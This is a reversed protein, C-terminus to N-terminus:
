KESLISHLEPFVRSFQENRIKDRVCVKDYFTDIIGPVNQSTNLLSSVSAMKADTTSIRSRLQRLVRAPFNTVKFWAPDDLLSFHIATDPVGTKRAWEVVDHLHMINFISVTIYINIDFTAIQTSLIEGVHHAVEAWSAGHRQYEFREGVDDVSFSLNLNKFEKWVDVYETVSFTGNTNYHLSINQAKGDAVLQELFERHGKFMFPEGGYFELYQLNSEPDSIINFIQEFMTVDSAATILIQRNIKEGRIAADEVMIRSSFTDCCIRCKLNCANGHKTDLGLLNAVPLILKEVPTLHIGLDCSGIFQQRPSIGGHAETEWCISCDSHKNNDHFRQRIAIIEKSNYKEVITATSHFKTKHRCCPAFRTAPGVELNVWPHFCFNTPLPVLPSVVLPDSNVELVLNSIAVDETSHSLRAAELESSYDTATVVVLVFNPINLRAVAQQLHQFVGLPIIEGSYFIIRENDHYVEKKFKSLLQYLLRYESVVNALDEILLIECDLTAAIVSKM